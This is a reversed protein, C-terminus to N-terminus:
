QGEGRDLIELLGETNEFRAVRAVCTLPLPGGYIHPFKESGPDHPSVPEHVIRLGAAQVAAHDLDLLVKPEAIEGFLYRVVRSAQEYSDSAHMFGVEAIDADLTSREFRGTPEAADWDRALAIHCLM